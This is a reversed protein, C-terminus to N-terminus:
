GNNKNNDEIKKLNAELYEALEVATNFRRYNQTLHEIVRDPTKVIINKVRPLAVPHMSLNYLGLALLLPVYLPESAMEGCISIDKAMKKGAKTVQEILYLVASNLPQYYPAVKENSRDVALTYQILDNTGLSAFDVEKLLKEIDIAASPVEVMIGLPIKTDTMKLESQVQKIVEKVALIEEVSSIMPIMIKLKGTEAARYLARLQTLLVEKEQLLIRISRWGLFPNAEHLKDAFPLFKDGGMDLLRITVTKKPFATLIKRYLDVQEEESLFRQKAIFPLETRFLGVGDAQYKQALNLEHDDNINAMLKVKNGSIVRVPLYILSELRKKRSEWLVIQDKFYKQTKQSPNLIIKGEYGDIAAKEVGQISKMLGVVGVVAAIELSHALIAAHSTKGGYETAIGKLSKHLFYISDIPTLERAMLINESYRDFDCHSDTQMLFYILRRSVGRIDYIRERLYEDQITGFQKELSNLKKRIIGEANQHNLRIAEPIEKQFIPDELILRYAEYIEANKTGVNRAIRDQKEIFQLGVENVATYYRDLESSIEEADIDIDQVDDLETRYLCVSGLALGESVSIGTLVIEQAKGAKDL